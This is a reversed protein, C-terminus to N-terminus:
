RRFTWSADGYKGAVLEAARARELASLGGVVLQLPLDAALAEALAHAVVRPDIAHGITDELSGVRRHLYAILDDRQDSTLRGLVQALAAQGGAVQITGHQLAAGRRRIQSNGIIKRGQDDLLEFPGLASFCVQRAADPAGTVFSARVPASAATVRAGLRTLGRALPNALRQYSAALSGQWLPHAAPLIVAYGLQGHHLVATGGSSRRLVGWGREAVAALDLDSASQATGLSVWPSRWLYFRLTPPSLGNGVLDLIAEDVAMNWPGDAPEPLILRWPERHDLRRHEDGLGPQACLSTTM